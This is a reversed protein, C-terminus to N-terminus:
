PEFAIPYVVSVIGGEPPPYRVTGFVDVVCAVVEADPLTSGSNKADRTAGDEGIVYEVNVIGALRPDRARGAEYCARYSEFHKRVVVQIVEAPLRGHQNELAAPHGGASAAKAPADPVFEYGYGSPDDSGGVVGTATSGCAALIALAAGLVLAQATSPWRRRWTLAEIRDRLPSGFSLAGAEATHDALEFARWAAVDLLAHGYRRRESATSGAVAAEDCALEVLRRVRAIAIWVPVVPWAVIALVDMAVALWGDRRRVHASEHALVSRLADESGAALLRRPLVIRPSLLGVVMPGLEAHEVIPCPLAAEFPRASSLARALRLRAVVARVALLAVVVIYAAAALVHITSAGVAAAVGSEVKMVPAVVAGLGAGKSAITWDLPLVVRLAVPLYLAVRWGARTSRALLRDLVVAGALLVATSINLVTARAVLARGFSALVELGHDNM